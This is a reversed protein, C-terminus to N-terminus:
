NRPARTFRYPTIWPTEEILESASDNYRYIKTGLGGPLKVKETVHKGEVTGSVEKKELRVRNSGILSYSGSLTFSLGFTVFRGGRKFEMGTVASRNEDGSISDVSSPDLYWKGLLPDSTAYIGVAALCAAILVCGFLRSRWKPGTSGVAM